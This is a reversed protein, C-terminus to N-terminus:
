SDPVASARHSSIAYRLGHKAPSRTRISSWAKVRSPSIPANPRNTLSAPFVIANTVIPARQARAAVAGRVVSRDPGIALYLAPLWMPIGAFDPQRHRFVGLRSLVVEALPGSVAAATTLVVGQWTRDTYLWLAVAGLLLVVTKLANSAPLFASVAYLVAFVLMAVIVRTRSPMAAPAHLKNWGLVYLAGGFGYM